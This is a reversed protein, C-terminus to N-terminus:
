DMGLTPPPGPRWLGGAQATPLLNEDVCKVLVKCNADSGRDSIMEAWGGGSSLQSGCSSGGVTEGGETTCAHKV